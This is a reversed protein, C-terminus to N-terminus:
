HNKRRLFWRILMFALVFPVALLLLIVIYILIHGLSVALAGRM